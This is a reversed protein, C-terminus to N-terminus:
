FGNLIQLVNGLYLEGFLNLHNLLHYLDYIKRRERYEKRDFPNIERYAEYFCEPQSGFLQTMALDAEFDGVYVAPDIIWPIEGEGCIMNGSWLDGHLLSPFEPERLFSELHGNLWEAKKWAAPDLYKRAKELQPLLRCERFFDTWKKYPFNKQFSAGIYNDKRFGYKKGSEADPIFERCQARHMQALRRGFREWYQDTGRSRHILEMALFSVRREEDAGMGIIQPVNIKGTQRLASLGDAEARFFDLSRISNEKVFIKTGDSLLVGFALNIDGGTMRQKELVTVRSGFCERVMEDLSQYLPKGKIQEM